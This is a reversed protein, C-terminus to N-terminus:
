LGTLRKAAALIVGWKLVKHVARLLLPGLTRLTRAWYLRIARQRGLKKCEATFRENLDGVVADGHSPSSLTVLLFEALEPPYLKTTDVNQGAKYPLVKAIAIIESYYPEPIRGDPLEIQHTGQVEWRGRKPTMRLKVGNSLTVTYSVGWM